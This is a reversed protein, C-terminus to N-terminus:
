SSELGQYPRELGTKMSWPTEMPAWHRPTGVALSTRGLERVKGQDEQGEKQSGPSATLGEFVGRM